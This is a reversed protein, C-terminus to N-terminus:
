LFSHSEQVENTAAAARQFECIWEASWHSTTENCRVLTTVPVQPQVLDMALFTENSSAGYWTSQKPEGQLLTRHVEFLM